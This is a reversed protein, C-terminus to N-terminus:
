VAHRVCLCLSLARIVDYVDDNWGTSWDRSGAALLFRDIRGSRQIATIATVNIRSSYSSRM